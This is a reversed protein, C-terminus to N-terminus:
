KELLLDGITRHWHNPFATFAGSAWALIAFQKSRRFVGATCGLQCLHASSDLTLAIGPQKMQLSLTPGIILRNARRCLYCKSEQRGLNSGSCVTITTM